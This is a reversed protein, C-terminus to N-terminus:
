STLTFSHIPRYVLEGHSRASEVLAIENVKWTLSQLTMGQPTGSAARLLTVHPVYAREEVRFGAQSLDRQMATALAALAAPTEGCGAYVIRNHPWYGVRDVRLTFAACRLRGALASLTAVDTAAVEGLFALTAHLNESRTARGQVRSRCLVVWHALAERVSDDPWLAFFLRM